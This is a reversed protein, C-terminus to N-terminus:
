DGLEVESFTSWNALLVRLLPRLEEFKPGRTVQWTEENWDIYGHAVLKPLHVHRLLLDEFEPGHSGAETSSLLRAPRTSKTELSVLLQRRYEDALASFQEDLTM